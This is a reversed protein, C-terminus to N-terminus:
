KNDAKKFDNAGNKASSEKRVMKAFVIGVPKEVPVYLKRNGKEIPVNPFRKLDFDAYLLNPMLIEISSIEPVTSLVTKEASQITFQISSSLAGEVEDGGWSTIICNKACSWVRNYDIDTVDDKYKWTCSVNTSLVKEYINQLTTYEDRHFGAFTTQSTKALRLNKIGSVVQPAMEKRNMTVECTRICEPTHIFAHNHLKLRENSDTGVDYAIRNWTFDEMTLCVKTMHSYKSLFHHCVLTSFEEPSQIGHNNALIYITDKSADACIINSNDASLYESVGALSLKLEMQYEKITHLAGNREVQALKIFNKGYFRDEIEL